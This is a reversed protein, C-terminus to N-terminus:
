FQTKFNSHFRKGVVGVITNSWADNFNIKDEKEIKKQSM